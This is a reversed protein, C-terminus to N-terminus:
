LNQLFDKIPQWAPSNMDWVNKSDDFGAGVAARPDDTTAMFAHARAKLRQSGTVRVPAGAEEACKLFQKICYVRGDAAVSGMCLTELCGTQGPRPWLFVGVKPTSTSFMGVRRPAVLNIGAPSPGALANQIKSFATNPNDDADLVVVFSKVYHAFNPLTTLAPLKATLNDDGGITGVMVDSRGLENILRELALVDERGSTVVLHPKGPDLSTIEWERAM